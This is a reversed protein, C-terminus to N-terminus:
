FRDLVLSLPSYLYLPSSNCDRIELLLTNSWEHKSLTTISLMWNRGLIQVMWPPEVAHKWKNILNPLIQFFLKLLGVGSCKNQPFLHPHQIPRNNGLMILFCYEMNCLLLSFILCTFSEVNVCNHSSTLLSTLKWMTEVINFYEDPMLMFM